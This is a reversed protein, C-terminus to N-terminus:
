NVEGQDLYPVKVEMKVETRASGLHSEIPYGGQVRVGASEVLAPYFQEEMWAAQLVDPILESHYERIVSGVKPDKYIRLCSQCKHAYFNEWAIEPNKSAAWALLKEPGKYHLLLKLLDSEADRIANQLFLEGRSVGVNLEPIIRMGLGCCAGIRGDAQVVYSQLVSGCGGRSAINNSNVATGEPYREIALPSLPMWPSEFVRVRGKDNADLAKIKPHRLLSEKNVGQAARLEVMVAVTLPHKLASIIGNAVNDVPIYRAHEDGTSYNIEKLGADVLESIRHNAENENTAWHANTVLRTLMELCNAHRIAEVLDVWRLTPEGGTFVVNEFDLEKAQNIASLM